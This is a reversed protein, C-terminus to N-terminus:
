RRWSQLYLRFTLGFDYIVFGNQARGWSSVDIVVGGSHSCPQLAVDIAGGAFNWREAEYSKSNVEFWLKGAGGLGGLVM